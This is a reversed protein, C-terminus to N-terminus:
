KFYKYFIDDPKMKFISAIKVAMKYSLNRKGNEIQWYFPKSIGLKIAMDDCTIGEQKVFAVIITKIFIKIDGILTMNTIYELDYELKREWDIANRGNVQAWGSLGPMVSHRKRQESTMFVMDRVLQPRPGIFSMEGKIINFLEPLEDLSTSRLVAGFKTLRVDDPLLEGHEDREDTM